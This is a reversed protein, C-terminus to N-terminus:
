GLAKVAGVKGNLRARHLRVLATRSAFPAVSFRGEGTLDGAIKGSSVIIAAAAQGHEKVLRRGEEEPVDLTATAYEAAIVRHTVMM